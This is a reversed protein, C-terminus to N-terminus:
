ASNLGSFGEAPIKMEFFRRSYNDARFGAGRRPASGSSVTPGSQGSLCPWTAIAVLFVLLRSIGTPEACSFCSRFRLGRFRGLKPAPPAAGVLALDYWHRKFSRPHPALRDLVWPARSRHRQRTWRGAPSPVYSCLWGRGRNLNEPVNELQYADPVLPVKNTVARGQTSTNGCVAVKIGFIYM